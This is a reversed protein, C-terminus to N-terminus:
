QRGTDEIDLIKDLLSQDAAVIDVVKQRARAGNVLQFRGSAVRWRKALLKIVAANARGGEPAATVKVKLFAHGKDNVELGTV